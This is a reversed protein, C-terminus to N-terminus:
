NALMVPSNHMVACPVRSHSTEVQRQTDTSLSVEHFNTMCKTSAVTQLKNRHFTSHIQGETSLLTLTGIHKLQCPQSHRPKNAPRANMSSTM